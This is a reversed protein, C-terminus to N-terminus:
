REDARQKIWKEIEEQNWRVTRSTVKIQKPFDHKEMALYISNNSKWGMIKKVGNIDLLKM